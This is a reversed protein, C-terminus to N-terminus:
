PADGYLLVLRQRVLDVDYISLILDNAGDGNQDPLVEVDLVYPDSFRRGIDTIRQHGPEFRDLLYSTQGSALGRVILEPRGDGTIDAIPDLYTLQEEYDVGNLWPSGDWLSPWDENNMSPELPGDLAWVLGTRYDIFSEWYRSLLLDLVGDDNVDVFAYDSGTNGVTGVTGYVWYSPGSGEGLPGEYVLIAGFAGPADSRAEMFGAELRAYEGTIVLDSQGDSNVDFVRAQEGVTGGIDPVYLPEAAGLTGLGPQVLTPGHDVDRLYVELSGDGDFDSAATARLAYQSTSPLQVAVFGIADDVVLSGSAAGSFFYVGSPHTDDGSWPWAFDRTGDADLDSIIEVMDGYAGTGPDPFRLRAAETTTQDFLPGDLWAAPGNIDTLLMGYVGTGDLDAVEVRRGLYRSDPVIEADPDSLDITRDADCDEPAFRSRSTAGPYVDARTDDCDTAELETYPAEAECLCALTGAYGDGDLDGYFDTCGYADPDNISGDCDEDLPTTCVETRGPSMGPDSDNCDGAENVFGPIPECSYVSATDDGYGDGDRDPYWVLADESTSEDIEGDCDNDIYDCIESAAPNIAPDSENCDWKNEAYNEPQECAEITIGNDGFGDGDLDAYWVRGSTAGEEDEIGNCNDDIDNYCVEQADPHVNADLDDCDGTLETFGDGDQDLKNQNCALLAV